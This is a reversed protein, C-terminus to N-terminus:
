HGLTDIPVNSFSLKLEHRRADYYSAYGTLKHASPQFNNIEETIKIKLQDQVPKWDYLFLRRLITFDHKALNYLNSSIPTKKSNECGLSFVNEDSLILDLIYNRWLNGGQQSNIILQYCIGYYLEALRKNDQATGISAWIQGGKQIVDDDLLKRYLVLGELGLPM